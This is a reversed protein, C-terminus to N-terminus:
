NNPRIQESPPAKKDLTEILTEIDDATLLIVGGANEVLQFDAPTLNQHGGDVIRVGKHTIDLPANGDDSERADRQLEMLQKLDLEIEATVAKNIDFLTGTHGGNPIGATAPPTGGPGAPVSPTIGIPAGDDDSVPFNKSDDGKSVANQDKEADPFQPPLDSIVVR